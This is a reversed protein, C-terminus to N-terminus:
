TFLTINCNSKLCVGIKGNADSYVVADIFRLPSYDMYGSVVLPHSVKVQSVGGGRGGNTTTSIIYQEYKTNDIKDSRLIIFGNTWYHDKRETVGDPLNATRGMNDDFVDPMKMDRFEVDELSTCVLEKECVIHADQVTMQPYDAKTMYNYGRCLCLCAKDINCKDPKDMFFGKMFFVNKEEPTFGQFTYQFNADAGPNFGILATEKDIDISIFKESLSTESVTEITTKLLKLSEDSQNNNQSFINIILFITAALMIGFIILSTLSNYLGGRKNGIIKVRGRENIKSM